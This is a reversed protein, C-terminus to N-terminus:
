RRAGSLQASRMNAVTAANRSTTAIGHVSSTPNPSHAANMAQCRNRVRASGFFAHIRNAQDNGAHNAGRQGGVVEREGPLMRDLLRTPLFAIADVAVPQAEGRRANLAESGSHLRRRIGDEAAAPPCPFGRRVGDGHQRGTSSGGSGCARRARAMRLPLCRRPGPRRGPMWRSRCWGGSNLRRRRVRRWLCWSASADCRCDRCFM